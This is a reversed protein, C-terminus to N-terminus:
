RLDPSWEMEVVARAIGRPLAVYAPVLEAADASDGIKLAQAGIRALAGSLGALAAAGRSLANQPANDIDVAVSDPAIEGRAVLQPPEVDTAVGATVRVRHEYRDSAGAPLTVTVDDAADAGAVAAAALALTSSVGVIPVDLTYAITKATALGIRLGTFSGPGTGVIVGTLDTRSVNAERLLEDVNQLLEEGHRHHSQWRREGILTGTPQALAVVPTRTATDLVLIM